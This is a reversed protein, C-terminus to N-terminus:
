GDFCDETGLEAQDMKPSRKGEWENGTSVMLTNNRHTKRIGGLGTFGKGERLDVGSRWRKLAAAAAAADGGGDVGTGHQDVVGGRTSTLTTGSSRSWRKIVSLM